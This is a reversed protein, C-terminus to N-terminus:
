RRWHPFVREVTHIATVVGQEDVEAEVSRYLRGPTVAGSEVVDYIWELRQGGAPRLRATSPPGFLRELEPRTTSGSRVQRIRAPDIETGLSRTYLMTFGELVGRHHLTEAVRGEPDYRVSFQRIELSEDREPVGYKGFITSLVEYTEVRGLGPQEETSSPAGLLGQVEAITMGERIRGEVAPALPDPTRCATLFLLGLAAAISVRPLTRTARPHM